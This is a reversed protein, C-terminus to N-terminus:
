MSLAAIVPMRFNKFPFPGHLTCPQNQHQVQVVPVQPSETQCATLVAKVNDIKFTALIIQQRYSDYNDQHFGDHCSGLKISCFSGKGTPCLLPLLTPCFSGGKGTPCLIPLTPDGESALPHISLLRVTLKAASAGAAPITSSAKVIISMHFVAATTATAVLDNHRTTYCAAFLGDGLAVAQGVFPLNDDCVKEWKKEVVHFAYTGAASQLSDHDPSLLIHSGIAAYSSVSVDPPNRYELPDLSCPFFPPPPLTKWFSFNNSGSITPVGKRFSLSEFWPEFDFKKEYVRPRRSIAYVKSDLSILIPNHKPYSLEPGEFTKTTIPDYIVTTGGKGGVGVIWSGQESHTAVLSMGRRAGRIMGAVARAYPPPDALAATTADVTFVSFTLQPSLLPSVLYVPPKGYDTSSSKVKGDFSRKAKKKTM